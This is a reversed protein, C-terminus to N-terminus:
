IKLKSNTNELFCGNTTGPKAKSDVGNTRRSNEMAICCVIPYVASLDRALNGNLGQNPQDTKTLFTGCIQISVLIRCPPTSATTKVRLSHRKKCMFGSEKDDYSYLPHLRQLSHPIAGELAEIPTTVPPSLFLVGVSSGIPITVLACEVICVHSKSAAHQSFSSLSFNITIGRNKATTFSLTSQFLLLLVITSM